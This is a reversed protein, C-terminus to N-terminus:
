KSYVSRMMNTNSKNPYLLFGGNAGGGWSSSAGGQTSPLGPANATGPSVFFDLVGEFIGRLTIGSGFIGSDGAQANGSVGAAVTGAAIAPLKNDARNCGPCMAEINKGYADRVESRTVTGGKDLTNLFERQTEGWKKVHNIDYKLVEKGCSPCVIGGNQGRVAAQEVAERESVRWGRRAILKEVGEIGKATLKEALKVISVPNMGDPDNANVPNNGVYAYFNIGAEFGLPDESAFRGIVPDYYRARYYYLGTGDDERGTYKLRNPSTGTTSQTGGFASFTTSQLTGGNHGSVATTSTVNDHHFLFPKLKADTDYLYGAVLEDTSSGRFYKAYLNTGSYVSELHEGELFYDLSGLSGGSRGIRYDMSDYSYTEAGVTKVRGKADWTLTKAGTGMQSTLRGEFDHSFSSEVTGAASGIRIDLLRNTDATYNYYRTNSNATLSGKTYTKRNGAKDYTFLEDNATGPYDATKLRYLPDYAYTTTGSGDVSTLINGTRDRTYSTDSILANAADYQTLRTQWGNADFQSTTRAGASTVRSLLRGAPDYQYDVQLYDPNRLMVLRNAANYTYSTTSGQYTTKTLINGVKDFTFSLSKGRGDTKQTLRNLRDWAFGYGVSGNAAANPNGAADYGFTEASNDKLYDARTPRNAKDYTLRTVENLRNTQEYVNGAEDPQYGITKASHDTESKLRGLDDYAFSWTKLEADKVSLRNGALDYTFVTEGNDADVIKTVRNLEDYQRTESCAPTQTNKTQLGAQANADITCTLNGNEDYQFESRFGMPDVAATKRGLADIEFKVTEDNANTVAVVDGRLSYKTETRYGTADIVATRRNMADYEVRATHGEADTVAVVNGTEDYTYTTVNGEADTETKVRDAADFTRTVVDRVDFTADPKKYRHTVKWLQGNADFSNVVENGLSDTAKTVRDLADYDYSTTLDILTADTPSTRRKLTETKKRGLSDWTYTQTIAINAPQGVTQQQSVNLGGSGTEYTLRTERYRTADLYQRSYNLTADSNWCQSALLVNASGALAGIRTEKPRNAYDCGSTATAYTTTTVTGRKDKATAVQDLPGYTMDVTRNLADQERTVNGNADSAGAFAKDARYSYSTAYGQADYKKSRIADGQNEFLLVGGDPERLQTMRGNDDYFYERIGGRADTVRTSKRYLDYDLIDGQGLGNTQQFARGNQYYQFVTKVPQGDRALPQVVETLLHRPADYAYTLVEALPNTRTSLNGSADYAFSWKRATWDSVDKLRGNADYTFVLGTRTSIGLNDTITSLRGNTDYALTLRDGWANDIYKLRAVLNPTTKLSGSPVEFIYKVGNRFVLTHQGAAPSDLTLTDYVGKPATVAYSTEDVLYAQEGGREDTYTVSSTKSNANEPKQASTCNPCDGFDNSKLQMLYSHTWGYGLGRDVSTSSPASNYTRTFVLNLGNRGRIVFDTEDHYNNGSVTSIPDATSPTRIADNNVTGVLVRDNFQDNNFTPLVSVGGTNIAKAPNLVAAGDVYGGALAPMASTLTFCALTLAALPRRHRELFGSQMASSAPHRRM